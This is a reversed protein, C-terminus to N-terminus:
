LIDFSFIYLNDENIDNNHIFDRVIDYSQKSLCIILNVEQTLLKKFFVDTVAYIRLKNQLINLNNENHETIIGIPYDKKLLSDVINQVNKGDPYILLARYISLNNYIEDIFTILNSEM